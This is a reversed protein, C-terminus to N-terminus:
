WGGKGAVFILWRYGSAVIQLRICGDRGSAAMQFWKTGNAVVLLWRGCSAFM